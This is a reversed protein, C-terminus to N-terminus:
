RRASRPGPNTTGQASPGFSYYHVNLVDAPIGPATRPPGRACPTSSAVASDEWTTTSTGHGALGGDGDEHEPRREEHRANNANARTATSTPARWRRTRRPRSSPAGDANVWWADEENWDEIYQVTGDRHRRAAGVRAPPSRDRGRHQRLARRVPVDRRTRPTPRRGRDRKRRGRGAARRRRQAV